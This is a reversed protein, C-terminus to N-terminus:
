PPAAEGLSDAPMPADPSGSFLLPKRSLNRPGTVIVVITVVVLNVVCGFIPHTASSSLFLNTLAISTHFLLALLLSGQTHNYVWTFLITTMVIGILFWGFPLSARTDGQTLFLPLHWLGWLVGLVLSAVLASHRALLGPLAYGRWGLEEGMASGLFFQQFFLVPVLLLFGGARLEEPFSTTGLIPPHALDPPPAGFLMALGSSALSLVAPWLLVFGYWHLGVRWFLLRRLLANLGQKGETVALLILAALTPGFVGLFSTLNPSLPFALLGHSALAAPIWLSWSLVFTLLFFVLTALTTRKMLSLRPKTTTM